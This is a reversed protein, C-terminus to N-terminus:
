KQGFGHCFTFKLFSKPGPNPDKFISLKDLISSISKVFFGDSRDALPQHQGVYIFLCKPYKDKIKKAIECNLNWNWM